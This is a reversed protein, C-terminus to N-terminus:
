AQHCTQHATLSQLEIPVVRESTHFQLSVSLGVSERSGSPFLYSELANRLRQSLFGM